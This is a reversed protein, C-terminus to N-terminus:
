AGVKTWRDVGPVLGLLSGCDWAVHVTGLADVSLVTGRDGRSLRTYPDSTAVLEVRQGPQAPAPDPLRTLSGPLKKIVTGGSHVRVRLMDGLRTASVVTGTVTGAPAEWRVRCGEPFGLRAAREATSEDPRVSTYRNAAQM